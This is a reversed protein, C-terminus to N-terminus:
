QMHRQLRKEFSSRFAGKWELNNHKLYEAVGDLANELLKEDQEQQSVEAEVNMNDVADMQKKMESFEKELAEDIDTVINDM